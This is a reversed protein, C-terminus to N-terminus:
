AVAHVCHIGEILAVAFARMVQAAKSKPSHKCFLLGLSIATKHAAQDPIATEFVLEGGFVDSLMDRYKQGPAARALRSLCYGRPKLPIKLKDNQVSARSSSTAPYLWSGLTSDGGSV